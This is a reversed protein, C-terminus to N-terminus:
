VVGAQQVYKRAADLHNDHTVNKYIDVPPVVTGEGSSAPAPTFTNDNKPVLGSKAQQRGLEIYHNALSSLEESAKKAFYEYQNPTLMTPNLGM